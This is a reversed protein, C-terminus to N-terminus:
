PALLGLIVDDAFEGDVWASRRLTGELEFGARRAAAIMATNDALTELQLRHLGRIGFGYRCLVHLV